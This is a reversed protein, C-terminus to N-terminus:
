FFKKGAKPKGRWERRLEKFVKSQAMVVHVASIMQDNTFPPNGYEAYNIAEKLQQLVTEIPQEQNWPQRMKEENQQLDLNTMSSRTANLHEFIQRIFVNM